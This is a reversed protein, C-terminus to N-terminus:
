QCDRYVGGVSHKRGERVIAALMDVGVGAIVHAEDKVLTVHPAFGRETLLAAFQATTPTM